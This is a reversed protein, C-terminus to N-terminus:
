DFWHGFGMKGLLKSGQVVIYDKAKEWTDFKKSEGHGVVVFKGSESENIRYPGSKSNMFILGQAILQV